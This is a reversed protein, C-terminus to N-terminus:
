YCVSGPPRTARVYLTSSIKIKPQGGLDKRFALVQKPLVDGVGTAAGLQEGVIPNPWKRHAAGFALEIVRQLGGLTQLASDNERAVLRRLFARRVLNMRVDRHSHGRRWSQSLRSSSDVIGM